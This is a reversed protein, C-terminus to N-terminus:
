RPKRRRDVKAKGKVVAAHLEELGRLAREAGAIKLATTSGWYALAAGTAAVFLASLLSPKKQKVTKM